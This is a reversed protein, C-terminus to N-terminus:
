RSTNRRKRIIKKGHPVTVTATQITVNGFNDVAQYAITYVRNDGSGSREARLWISGDDKNVQIDNDTHGDGISDDHESSSVGFLTIEVPGGCSDTAFTDVKIEVMKHSPPWLVSPTVSVELKPGTIDEVSIMVQSVDSVGAADVVELVIINEGAPLNYEIAEGSGIYEQINLDNSDLLYWDFSVIDDNSGPTSDIDTSCSGDLTVTAICYSNADIIRDGGVICAEPATNTPGFLGVDYGRWMGVSNDGDNIFVIENCYSLSFHSDFTVGAGDLTTTDIRVGSNDWASLTGESYTLWYDGAVVIRCNPPYETEGPITGYGQLPVTGIFSGNSDWRSVIGNEQAIYEGQANVSLLVSSHVDLSGGTLEIHTQFNGPSIQKYITRSIYVRVFVNNDSDTFVSRFSFGPSFASVLAGTTGDMQALRNGSPNGGSVSWFYTGDHALGMTHYAGSQSLGDPFSIVESYSAEFLPAAVLNGSCIIGVTIVLLVHLKKM